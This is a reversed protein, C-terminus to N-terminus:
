AEGQFVAAQRRLREIASSELLTEPDSLLQARLGESLRQATNLFLEFAVAGDLAAPLPLFMVVGPTQFAEIRKMDFHGPELMNALSFLPKTTRLEGAGFHHFIQLDGHRMGVANVNRVIAPGVFAPGFRPRLYLALIAPAPPPAPAAVPTEETVAEPAQEDFGLAMQQVRKRPRKPRSKPPPEADNPVQPAPSDVPEREEERRLVPLETLPEAKRVRVAIIEDVPEPLEAGAPEDGADPDAEEFRHLKRPPWAPLQSRYLRNRKRKRSIGFVYVGAIVGLGIALLILRLTWSADGM